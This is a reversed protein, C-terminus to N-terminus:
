FRSIEGEWKEGWGWPWPSRGGGGAGCAAGTVYATRRLPAGLSASWPGAPAARPEAPYRLQFNVQTETDQPNGRGVAGLQLARGAPHARGAGGGAPAGSGPPFGTKVKAELCM